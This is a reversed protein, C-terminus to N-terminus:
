VKIRMRYATPSMGEHQRFYRGFVSQDPFNMKQAIEKLSLDTDILMRRIKTMTFLKIWYTPEHGSIERVVSTFHGTSLNQLGAYYKVLRNTHCNSYVSAIFRNFIQNSRKAPTGCVFTSASYVRFVEYCVSMILNDTAKHNFGMPADTEAKIMEMKYRIIDLLRCILDAQEDNIGICPHQSMELRMDPSIDNLIMMTEEVDVELIVGAADHSVYELNIISFPKFIFLTNCELVYVMDDSNIRCSGATCLLIGFGDPNVVGNSQSLYSADFKRIVSLAM